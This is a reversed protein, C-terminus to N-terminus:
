FVGFMLQLHQVAASFLLPIILLSVMMNFCVDNVGLGWSAAVCACGVAITELDYPVRKKKGSTGSTHLMLVCRMREDPQTATTTTTAVGCPDASEASYHVVHDEGDLVFEHEPTMVAGDAGSTSNQALVTMQAATHTPVTFVFVDAGRHTLAFVGVTDASPHLRLVLIGAASLRTELLDYTSSDTSNNDSTDSAAVIAAHVGFELLEGLVEDGTNQPNVPCCVGAAM